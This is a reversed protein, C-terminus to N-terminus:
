MFGKGSDGTLNRSIAKFDAGLLSVLAGTDWAESPVLSFRHVTAANRDERPFMNFVHM